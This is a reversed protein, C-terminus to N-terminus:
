EAPAPRVCRECTERPELFGCELYNVAHWDGPGYRALEQHQADLIIVWGEEDPGKGERMKSERPFEAVPEHDLWVRLPPGQSM